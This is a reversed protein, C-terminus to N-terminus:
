GRGAMKDAPLLGVRMLGEICAQRSVHFQLKSILGADECCPTDRSVQFCQMALPDDWFSVDM